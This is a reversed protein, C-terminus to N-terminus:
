AIYKQLHALVRTLQDEVHAREEFIHGERPYIILKSAASAAEDGERVLGRMFGIAQSVPVRVDKEGHLVLVPVKVNKVDAMACGKLYHPVRKPDRPTWPASGAFDLQLFTFAHFM